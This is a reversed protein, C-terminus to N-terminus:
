DAMIFFSLTYPIELHYRRYDQDTESSYGLDRGVIVHWDEDPYKTNMENKIAKAMSAHTKGPVYIDTIFSKVDNKM